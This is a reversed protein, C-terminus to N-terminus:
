LRDALSIEYARMSHVSLWLQRFAWNSINIAVSRSCVGQHQACGQARPHQDNERWEELSFGEDM